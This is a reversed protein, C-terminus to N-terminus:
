PRQSIEISDTRINHIVLLFNKDYANVAARPRNEPWGKVAPVHRIEFFQDIGACASYEFRRQRRYRRRCPATKLGASIRACVADKIKGVPVFLFFLVAIDTGITKRFGDPLDGTIGAFPYPRYIHRHGIRWPRDVPVRDRTNQRRRHIRIKRIRAFQLPLQRVDQRIIMHKVQLIDWPFIGCGSLELIKDPLHGGYDPGPGARRLKDDILFRQIQEHDVKLRRIDKLVHEPAIQVGSVFGEIRYLVLIHEAIEVPFEVLTYGPYPPSKGLRGAAIKKRQDNGVVTELPM